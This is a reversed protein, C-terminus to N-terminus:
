TKTKGHNLKRRAAQLALRVPHLRNSTEAARRDIAQQLTEVCEPPEPDNVDWTKGCASCSVQDSYQRPQRHPSRMTNMEQKRCTTGTLSTESTLFYRYGSTIHTTCRRAPERATWHHRPM